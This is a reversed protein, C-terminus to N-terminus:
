RILEETKDIYIYKQNFCAEILTRKGINNQMSPMVPQSRPVPRSVDPLLHARVADFDTAVAISLLAHMRFRQRDSRGSQGEPNERRRLPNRNPKM